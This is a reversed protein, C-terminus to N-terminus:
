PASKCGVMSLMVPPFVYRYGFVSKMIGTKKMTAAALASLKGFRGSTDRSSFKTRFLEGDLGASEGDRSSWAQGGHTEFDLGSFLRRVGNPTFRWYDDPYGHLEWVFPVSLLLVGDEAMLAEINRAMRFPDSCHELVSMCIITQFRKGGLAQDIVSLEATLDLVLDVGKGPLMDTGVYECQPFLSRFDQTTGYDHSGIELIPGKVLHAYSKAFLLQNKDGM